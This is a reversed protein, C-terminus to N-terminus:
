KVMILDYIATPLAGITDYTSGETVGSTVCLYNEKSGDKMFYIKSENKSFMANRAWGYGTTQCVIIEKNNVFDKYYLNGNTSTVCCGNKGWSNKKVNMTNMDTTTINGTQLDLFKYTGHNSYLIYRRDSTMAKITVDNDNADGLRTYTKQEFDYRFLIEYDYHYSGGDIGYGDVQGYAYKGDPSAFLTRQILGVETDDGVEPQGLVFSNPSEAIDYTNDSPNFRLLFFKYQDGYSLDNTASSYIIVGNDAVDATTTQFYAYDNSGQVPEVLPLYYANDDDLSMYVGNNNFASPNLGLVMVNNNIDCNDTMNTAPYANLFKSYTLEGDKVTVLYISKEDGTANKTDPKYYALFQVNDFDGQPNDGGGGDDPTVTEDKNCGTVVVSLVMVVMLLLGMIKKLNKM